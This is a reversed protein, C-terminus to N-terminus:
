VAQILQLSTRVFAFTLKQFPVPPRHHENTELALRRLM